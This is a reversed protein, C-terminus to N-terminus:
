RESDNAAGSPTSRAQRTTACGRRGSTPGRRRWSPSPPSRPPYHAATPGRSSNQRAGRRRSTSPPRRTAGPRARRCSASPAPRGTSPRVAWDPPAHGSAASDPSCPRPTSPTPAPAFRDSRRPRTQAQPRRLIEPVARRHARDVVMPASVEVAPQVAARARRAAATGAGGGRPCARMRRSRGRHVAGGDGEDPAAPRHRQLVPQGPPAPGRRYRRVAGRRRSRPVRLRRAQTAVRRRLRAQAAARPQRRPPLRTPRCLHARGSQRRTRDARASRRRHCACRRARPTDARHHRRVTAGTGVAAREASRRPDARSPGIPRHVARSAQALHNRVAARCGAPVRHRVRRQTRRPGGRPLVGSLRAARRRDDPRRSGHGLHHRHAPRDAPSHCPGPRGAHRARRAGSRRPDEGRRDRHHRRRTAGGKAVARGGTTELDVM